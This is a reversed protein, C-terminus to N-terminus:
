EIELKDELQSLEFRRKNFEKKTYYYVLMILPFGNLMYNGQRLMSIFILVFFAQSIIRYENLEKNRNKHVFSRFLVLLIFGAGLLGTESLLRIFMSNADKTNFSFDYLVVTNTLSYKYYATEHSGLGTGFIPHSKLNETAIHMNNYLVFSSTNTNEIKFDQDIWLGRSTDFRSRFEDINNYALFGGAIAVAAGVAIYRVNLSDSALLFALVLGIIGTSSSTLILVLIIIVGQWKNLIFNEKRFFNYISVYVAPSLVIALGSPEAIISNIRIGTFGGAIVGWKNFLWSYDYGWTFGIQFSIFQILGLLAIWYCWKIYIEFLRKVDFDYYLLVYQYFMLSVLIGGFVKIFAFQEVNGSFISLVGVILPVAMVQVVLKPLRYKLIFFPLLAIFIIYHFYGEFPNKFFIISSSFLTVYILVEIKKSVNTSKYKVAKSL